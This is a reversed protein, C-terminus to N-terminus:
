NTKRCDIQLTFTFTYKYLADDRVRRWHAIAERVDATIEM